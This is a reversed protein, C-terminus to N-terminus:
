RRFGVEPQQEGALGSKQRMARLKEKRKLAEEELNSAMEAAMKFICGAISAPVMLCEICAPFRPNCLSGLLLCFLTKCIKFDEGEGKWCKERRLKEEKKKEKTKKHM